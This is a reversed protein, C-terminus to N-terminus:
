APVGERKAPTKLSEILDASPPRRLPRFRSLKYAHQGWRGMAPARVGVLLLGTERNEDDRIAEVKYIMGMILHSPRVIGRWVGPSADVCEVWDGPGIARM